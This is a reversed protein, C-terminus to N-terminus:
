KIHKPKIHKPKIHIAHNFIHMIIIYPLFSMFMQESSSVISLQGDSQRENTLGVVHGESWHVELQQQSLLQQKVDDVLSGAVLEAATFWATLMININVNIAVASATQMTM